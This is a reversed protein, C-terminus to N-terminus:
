HEKLNYGCNPCETDGPTIKYFCVPCEDGQPTNIKEEEDINETKDNEYNNLMENELEALIEQKKATTEQSNKCVELIQMRQNSNAIKTLQTVIEGLAYLAFSGIWSGLSGGVLILLGLVFDDEITLIIGTIASGIIGIITTAFALSKIKNDINDFM